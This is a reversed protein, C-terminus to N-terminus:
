GEDEQMVAFKIKAFGAQLGSLVVPNLNSYEATKDAQIIISDHKSRLSQLADGLQDLNYKKNDITYNGASVAVVISKELISSHAATPLKMEKPVNIEESGFSTAMLLYVVLISFCDVLSTLTLSSSLSKKLYFSTPQIVSRSSLVSSSLAGSTIKFNNLFSM